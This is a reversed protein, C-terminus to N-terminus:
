SPSSVSTSQPPANQTRQGSPLCQLTSESQSLLEQTFPIQVAVVHSSPIWFPWSVSTSQPPSKQAPQPVPLRQLRDESQWLSRHQPPTHQPGSCCHTLPWHTQGPLCCRRGRPAACRCASPGCSEHQ